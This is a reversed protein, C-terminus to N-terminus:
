DWFEEDSVGCEKKGEVDLSIQCPSSNTLLEDIKKKNLEETEMLISLVIPLNMNTIVIIEGKCLSLRKLVDQSVSGGLIDTFIIAKENEHVNSLFSDLKDLHSDTEDVYADVYM